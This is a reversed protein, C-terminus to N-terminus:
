GRARSFATWPRPQARPSVCGGTLQGTAQKAERCHAARDPGSCPEIGMSDGHGVLRIFGARISGVNRGPCGELPINERVVTEEAPFRFVADVAELMIDWDDDKM